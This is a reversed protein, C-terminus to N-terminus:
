NIWYHKKGKNVILIAILCLIISLFLTIPAFAPLTDIIDSFGFLWIRHTLFGLISIVLVSVTQKKRLMLFIAGTFNALIGIVYGTKAWLPDPVDDTFVPLIQAVGAIALLGFAISFIWFWIPTKKREM